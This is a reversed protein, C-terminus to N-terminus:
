EIALSPEIQTVSSKLTLFRWLWFLMKGGSSASHEYASEETGSLLRSYREQGDGDGDEQYDSNEFAKQHEELRASWSELYQIDKRTNNKRNLESYCKWEDDEVKKMFHYELCKRISLWSKEQLTEDWM